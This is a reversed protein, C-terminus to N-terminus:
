QVLVALYRPQPPARGAGQVLGGQTDAGNAALLSSTSRNGADTADPTSTRRV